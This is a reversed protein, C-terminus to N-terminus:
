SGRAEPTVVNRHRNRLKFRPDAHQTQKVHHRSNDVAPRRTARNRGHRQGATPLTGPPCMVDQEVYAAECILPSRYGLSVLAPIHSCTGKIVSSITRSAQEHTDFRTRSLM